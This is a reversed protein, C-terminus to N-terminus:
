KQQEAAQEAASVIGLMLIPGGVCTHCILATNDYHLATGCQPCETTHQASVAPDAHHRTYHVTFGGGPQAAMIIATVDADEVLRAFAQIDLQAM